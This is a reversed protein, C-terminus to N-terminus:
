VTEIQLTHADEEPVSVDSKEKEKILDLTSFSVIRLFTKKDGETRKRHINQAEERVILYFFVACVNERFARSENWWTYESSSFNWFTSM